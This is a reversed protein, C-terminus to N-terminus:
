FYNSNKKKLLKKRINMQTKLLTIKKKKKKSISIQEKDIDSISQHLEESTILHEELLKDKEVQARQLLAEKWNGDKNFLFKSAMEEHLSAVASLVVHQSSRTREM